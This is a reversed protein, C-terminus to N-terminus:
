DHKSDGRDELFNLSNRYEDINSLIDCLRLLKAEYPHLNRIDDNSLIDSCMATMDIEAPYIQMNRGYRIFNLDNKGRKYEKNDDNTAKFGSRGFRIVIDPSKWRPYRNVQSNSDGEGGLAKEMNNDGESRGYRIFSDGRRKKSAPDDSRSDANHRKLVYEFDSPADKFIRLSGDAKLPTLISSSVLVCNCLFPLVYLSSLVNM